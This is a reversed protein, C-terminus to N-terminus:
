VISKAFLIEHNSYTDDEWALYLTNDDSVSISTCESIGVNNSINQYADEFSAGADSSKMILIDENNNSIQSQWAVYVTSDGDTTVEVNLTNGKELTSPNSFNNGNDISKTFILDGVVKDDPNGGWVVYVNKGNSTIQSEGISNMEENLRIPESFTNGADRSKAFFIGEHINNKGENVNKDDDTIIGVNWAVYASYEFASIKPYSKFTNNSLTISDKFTNGGDNSTRLLISGNGHPMSVVKSNNAPGAKRFEQYDMIQAITDQWVAYVNNGAAAIELNDSASTSSNSLNIVNSFTNGGDTSKRYLIEKNTTLSNDIWAVHVTNGSIAIQPHESIGRNNSLNIEKGFTLGRDTSKKILIDYNRRNDYQSLSQKAQSDPDDEEWVVYVNKGHSAIQAYVSDRTNNSLNVPKTFDLKQGAGQAYSEHHNMAAGFTFSIVGLGPNTGLLLIAFLIPGLKASIIIKVIRTLLKCTSKTKDLHFEAM